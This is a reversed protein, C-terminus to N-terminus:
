SPAHERFPDTDADAFVGANPATTEDPSTREIAVQVMDVLRDRAGNRLKDQAAQVDARALVADVEESGECAALELALADLWEGVTQRKPGDRETTFAMPPNHRDPTEVRPVFPPQADLTTGRFTDRVPIDAAEEATILGRLVDPFADRVAFGRARMQLMRKPYQQWPGSKGWLGAKKADEVSFSRVVPEAGVRTATCTAVQKDGEGTVAEVIDKCVPSQRCLGVVADGWVAPRGNVCAINQLSQMPALGLESGMQIALMINEPKGQYDRPVMASKSAMNAFQVLDAFSQPRLITAAPATKAIANM